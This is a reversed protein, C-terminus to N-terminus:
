EGVGMAAKSRDRPEGLKWTRLVAAVVNPQTAPPAAEGFTPQLRKVDCM